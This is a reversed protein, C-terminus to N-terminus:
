TRQHIAGHMACAARSTRLIMTKGEHVERIAHVVQELTASKLIYAM